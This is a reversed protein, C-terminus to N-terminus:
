FYTYSLNINSIKLLIKFITELLLFNLKKIKIIIVKMEENASTIEIPRIM